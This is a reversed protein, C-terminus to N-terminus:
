SLFSAGPMGEAWAPTRQYWKSTSEDDQEEYPSQLLKELEQLISYDGKEANEYALVAMWNRLVFKPNAANMISIRADSDMNEEKIRSLYREFWGIWLESDPKREVPTKGGPNPEFIRDYDAFAVRLLELGRLPTDANAAKSLERFTITMDCRSRYMLQELEKYLQLTSSNGEGDGDVGLKRKQMMRYNEMFYNEFEVERIEKISNCGAIAAEHDEGCIHKILREFVQNGLVNINIGMANPQRIFCFKGDSDSTFPQYFPDFTEMWGYPGYDVTRGGLLTNDSNMNGQTYGVRMWETVLFATSRAIERYLETYREPLSSIALLHEYERFCTYEALKELETYGERMAFLELQSFRLFSKATRCMVAGPERNFVDPSFKYGRNKNAYERHSGDQMGKSNAGYWPRRIEQGTSVISLARTTPVRLHHGM